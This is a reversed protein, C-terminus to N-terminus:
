FPLDHVFCSCGDFLHELCKLIKRAQPSDYLYTNDAIVTLTKHKVGKKDVYSGTIDTGLVVVKKGKPMSQDIKRAEANYAVCDFFDAKTSKNNVALSFKVLQRGTDVDTRLDSRDAIRGVKISKSFNDTSRFEFMKMMQKM